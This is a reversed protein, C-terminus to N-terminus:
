RSLCDEAAKSATASLLREGCGAPLSRENGAAANTPRLLGCLGGLFTGDRAAILRM